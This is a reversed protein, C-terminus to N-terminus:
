MDEIAQAFSGDGSAGMYWHVGNQLTCEVGFAGTREDYVVRYASDEHGTHDTVLWYESESKGDLDNALVIRRPTVLHAGAWKFLHPSLRRISQGVRDRIQAETNQTEETM